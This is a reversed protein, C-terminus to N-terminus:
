DTRPWGHSSESGLSEGCYPCWQVSPRGATQTQTGTQARDGTRAQEGTREAFFGAALISSPLAFFAVGGLMTAAGLLRGLPTVPVVDGYGVTTLTVVGWWLTEPISSFADPQVSGEVFYMLTSSVLVLMGAGSFAIGLDSRQADLVRKFRRRSHRFWSLNLVRALWFVRFLGSEFLRIEFLLGTWFTVIVFCDVVAIPDRVFAFRSRGADPAASGAAWLRVVYLCTFLAISAVLLGDFYAGYRADLSEVTSLVVAVVNASALVFVLREFREGWRNESDPDVVTWVQDRSTQTM